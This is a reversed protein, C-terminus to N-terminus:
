VENDSIGESVIVYVRERGLEPLVIRSQLSTPESGTRLNGRRKLEKAIAGASYGKCIEGEFIERLILYETQGDDRERKFGARNQVREIIENGRADYKTEFSQFRGSGHQAIFSLVQKVGQDTDYSGTTGRLTTWDKFM